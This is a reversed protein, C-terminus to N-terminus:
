NKNTEKKPIVNLKGKLKLENLKKIITRFHKFDEYKMEPPRIGKNISEIEEPTIKPKEM